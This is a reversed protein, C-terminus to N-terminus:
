LRAALREYLLRPISTFGRTRMLAVFAADRQLERLIALVEDAERETNRMSKVASRQRALELKLVSRAKAEPPRGGSQLSRKTNGHPRRPEATPAREQPGHNPSRM